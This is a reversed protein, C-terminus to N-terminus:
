GYNDPAHSLISMIFILLNQVHWPDEWGSKKTRSSVRCFTVFEKGLMVDLSVTGSSLQYTRLETTTSPIPYTGLSDCANDQSMCPTM